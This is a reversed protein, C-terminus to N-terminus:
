EDTKQSVGAEEFSAMDNLFAVASKVIPYAVACGTGEGLRMNLNILPTMKLYDLMLKHGKEGSQHSIIAYSEIAPCLARAVLFTATAIFGDVLVVMHLEAARLMAGCMQAMEFGGFSQLVDLPESINAHRHSATTLLDLKVRLQRDDLGTGRGVCLDLEIGCVRSMIMSASATNGIGMEGFGIINTGATAVEDVVKRGYDLAQQLQNETMALGDLFSRTGYDVKQQVLSPHPGFDHNVGADIVKLRIDNQRAFVNIAAGGSLFNYVMQYTVERPYASVNKERAIGHDGAFVLICPNDLSPTLSQRVLGIRIAIEELMGLSGVPKTKQNVKNVLRDILSKDPITINFDM